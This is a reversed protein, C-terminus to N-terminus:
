QWALWTHWQAGILRLESEEQKGRELKFSHRAPWLGLQLDDELELQVRISWSVDYSAKHDAVLVAAPDDLPM